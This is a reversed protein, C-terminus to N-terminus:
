GVDTATVQEILIEEPRRLLVRSEYTNDIEELFSQPSFGREFMGIAVEEAIRKGHVLVIPYQDEIIEKQVADSFYSTTVYAGIWGRRLRAVTRAIDNGNTPGRPSECKAQGFVVIRANAFGSGIDLRGVFDAGGDVSRRTIWGQRYKANGQGLVRAVVWDALAEFRVKNGEYFALVAQLIEDEKSGPTPLQESKKVVRLKAVSRRVQPISKPGERVWQRWASPAKTICDADTMMPDRRDNIWAWDFDENERVLSFVLFDYVYNTFYSSSKSDWQTVLGAREILGYGHFEIQGKQRGALAAGRFFVLPTARRRVETSEAWLQGVLSNLLRNGPAIEPRQSGPRNDGFYRIYGNDADFLDQWPATASGAKHPSSRILM